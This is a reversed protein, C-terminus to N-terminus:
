SSVYATAVPRADGSRRETLHEVARPIGAEPRLRLPPDHEARVREGGAIVVREVPLRLPNARQEDTLMAFSELAEVGDDGRRRRRNRERDAVLRGIRERHVRAVQQRDRRAERSQRPERDRAPEGLTERDPQLEDARLEPLVAEEADSM